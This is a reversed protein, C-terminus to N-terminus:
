LIAQYANQLRVSAHQWTWNQVVHQHARHRMPKLTPDKSAVRKMAEAWAKVADPLVLLGHQENEMLIRVVPLDSAIVLCGCAMGEIIKLPCCGQSCNRDNRKLPSLVADSQHHLVVLEKKSVPGVLDVVEGLGQRHIFAKLSKNFRKHLPGAITLRVDFDVRLRKIAMLITDVGQWPAVTGAYLFHTRYRDLGSGQDCPPPAFVQTDAGNPVVRIKSAPVGRDHTLYDATVQSPTIVLDAESLCVHEQARLKAILPEDEAVRPYHYKLEVSPLGNVEFVIQHTLAKRRKAIPYGEFISRFHIVEYLEQQGFWHGLSERFWRVREILHRGRAPIETHRVGVIPPLDLGHTGPLTVLDLAGLETLAQAVHHIHTAAGKHNPYADFSVSALRVPKASM